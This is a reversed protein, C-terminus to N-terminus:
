GAQRRREAAVAQDLDAVDMHIGPHRALAKCADDPQHVILPGIQDRECAIKDRATGPRESRVQRPGETPQASAVTGDRDQAIVIM